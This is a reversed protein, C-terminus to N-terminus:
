CGPPPAPRQGEQSKKEREMQMKDYEAQQPESLISKVKIVQDDHIARMQSRYTERLPRYRDRTEDLIAKLKGVQTGDLKLRSHMEDLYARRYEDPSKPLTKASVTKASYLKQGVVGVLAGSAFVLVGYLVPIAVTSRKM